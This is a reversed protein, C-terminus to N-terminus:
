IIDTTDQLAQNPQDQRQNRAIAKGAPRTLGTLLQRQGAEDERNLIYLKCGGHRQQDFVSSLFCTVFLKDNVLLRASPISQM